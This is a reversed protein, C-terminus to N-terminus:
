KLKAELKKVEAADMVLGLEERQYALILRTIAPQEGIEALRRYLELSRDSQSSELRGALSLMARPFGNNAAKELWELSEKEREPDGKYYEFLFASYYVQALSDGEQSAALLWRGADEAGGKWLIYGLMRQSEVEGQGAAQEFYAMAGLMDLNKYRELAKEFGESAAPAFSSYSLVGLLGLSVLCKKLRM